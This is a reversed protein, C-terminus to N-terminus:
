FAIQIYELFEQDKIITKFNLLSLVAHEIQNLRKVDIGFVKSIFSPKFSCDENFKMSIYICGILFGFLLNINLKISFAECIKDIYMNAIILSSVEINTKYIIRALFQELSISPNVIEISKLLSSFNSYSHKQAYLTFNVEKDYFENKYNISDDSIEDYAYCLQQLLYNFNIQLLKNKIVEYINMNESSKFGEHINTSNKRISIHRKSDTSTNVDIDFYEDHNKNYLQIAIDNSSCENKSSISPNTTNEYSNSSKSNSKEAIKNIMNKFTNLKNLIKLKEKKMNIENIIKLNMIPKFSHNLYYSNSFFDSKKLIDM